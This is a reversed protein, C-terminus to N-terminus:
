GVPRATASEGLKVQRLSQPHQLTTRYNRTSTSQFLILSQLKAYKMFKLFIRETASPSLIDCEVAPLCTCVFSKQFSFPLSNQLVRYSTRQSWMM